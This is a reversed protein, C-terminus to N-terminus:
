RHKESALRGASQDTVYLRSRELLEPDSGSKVPVPRQLLLEKGKEVPM